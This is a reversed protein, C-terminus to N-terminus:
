VEFDDDGYVYEDDDDDNLIPFLEKDQLFKISAGILEDRVKLPYIGKEGNQKIVAIAIGKDEKVITGEYQKILGELWAKADLQEKKSEPVYTMAALQTEGASVILKGINGSGGRREEANEDVEVNMGKMVEEILAVDGEPTEISVNYFQIGSLDSAGELEVGRKAGEKFAAKMKKEDAM